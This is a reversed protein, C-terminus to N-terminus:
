FKFLGNYFFEKMPTDVCHRGAEFHKLFDFIERANQRNLDIFKIVNIKGEVCVVAWSHGTNERYVDTGIHVVNEVTNHLVNVSEQFHYIQKSLVKNTNNNLDYTLNRLERFSNDNNDIHKDFLNTLTDIKLFKILKIRLWNKFKKM